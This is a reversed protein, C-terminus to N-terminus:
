LSVYPRHRLLLLENILQINFLSETEKSSGLFQIPLYAASDCDTRQGNFSNTIDNILEM